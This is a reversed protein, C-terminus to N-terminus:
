NERAILIKQCLLEVIAEKEYTDSTSNPILLDAYEKTPLIYENYM